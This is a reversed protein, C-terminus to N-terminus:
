DFRRIVVANGLQEDQSHVSCVCGSYPELFIWEGNPALRNPPWDVKLERSVPSNVSYAPVYDLADQKRPRWYGSLLVRGNRSLTPVRPINSDHPELSSKGLLALVPVPLNCPHVTSSSHRPEARDEGFHTTTLLCDQVHWVVKCRGIANRGVATIRIRIDADNGRHSWYDVSALVSAVSHTPFGPMREMVSMGAISRIGDIDSKPDTISFRDFAPLLPIVQLYMDGSTAKVLQVLHDGAISCCSLHECKVHESAIKRQM